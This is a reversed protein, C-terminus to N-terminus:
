WENRKVRIMYNIETTCQIHDFRIALLLKMYRFVNFIIFIQTYLRISPYLVFCVINFHLFM